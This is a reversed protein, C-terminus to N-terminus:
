ESMVQVDFSASVRWVSEKGDFHTVLDRTTTIEGELNGGLRRAGEFEVGFGVGSIAGTLEETTADVSTVDGSFAVTIKMRNGFGVWILESPSQKETPVEERFCHITVDEQSADFHNPEGVAFVYPFVVTEGGITFSCESAGVGASLAFAILGCITIKM